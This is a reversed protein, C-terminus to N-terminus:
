SLCQVFQVSIYIAVVMVGVVGCVTAVVSSRVSLLYLCMILLPTCHSGSFVTPGCMLGAECQSNIVQCSGRLSRHNEGDSHVM